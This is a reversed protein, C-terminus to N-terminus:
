ASPSGHVQWTGSPHQQAHRQTEAPRCEVHALRSGTPQCVLRRSLRPRPRNGPIGACASRTGPPLPHPAYKAPGPERWGPVAAGARARGAKGRTSERAPWRPRQPVPRERARHGSHRRGSREARSRSATQIGHRNSDASLGGRRCRDGPPFRRRVRIRARDRARRVDLATSFSQETRRGCAPWKIKKSPLVTGASRVGAATRFRVHPDHRDHVEVGLGVRFRGPRRFQVAM